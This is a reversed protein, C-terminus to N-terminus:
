GLRRAAARGLVGLTEADLAELFLAAAAPNAVLCRLAHFYALFDHGARTVAPSLHGIHCAGDHLPHGLPSRRGSPKDVNVRLHNPTALAAFAAAGLLADQRRLCALRAGGGERAPEARRTAAHLWSAGAPVREVEWPGTWHAHRALPSEALREGPGPDAERRRARDLYLASFANERPQTSTSRISSPTSRTSSQQKAQM